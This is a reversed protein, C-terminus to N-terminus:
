IDELIEEQPSCLQWPFYTKGHTLHPNGTYKHGDDKIKEGDLFDAGDERYKEQSSPDCGM